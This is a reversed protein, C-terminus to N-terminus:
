EMLRVGKRMERERWREREEMYVGSIVEWGVREGGEGGEGGVGVM